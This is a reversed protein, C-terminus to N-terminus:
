VDALVTRLNTRIQARISELLSILGFYILAGLVVILILIYLTDIAVFYRIGLLTLSMLISSMICWSLEKYPPRIIVFRSLYGLSLLTNLVISLITAFAAGEIGFRPVLVANLAVNASLSVLDAKASLDPHNTGTLFRGFVQHVSQFIKGAMLIMLPISAIVFGHGFVLGLIDRALVLTGFFAPFVLIVAPTFLKTILHEIEATADVADWQSVQPFVTQALTKSVLLFVSSVRWAIEYAGVHARTLFFGIFLLDVYSFMVGSIQSVVNYKVFHFMSYAHDISPTGFHTNVKWLSWIFTCFYGCILAFVLGRVGYGELLLIIGILFWTMRYGLRLVATEAVRMEGKLVHIGTEALEQVLLAVILYGSLPAGMYVNIHHSFSLIGGAILCFPIIKLILVTTLLEGPPKGESMRKELATRLGFDAPLTLVGLIAQFLFFVGIESSGLARAFLTIGLLSILLGTVDALFVKVSSRVLDM